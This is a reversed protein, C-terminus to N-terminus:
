LMIPWVAGHGFKEFSNVKEKIACKGVSSQSMYEQHWLSDSPKKYFIQGCRQEIDYIRLAMFNKFTKDKVAGKAM